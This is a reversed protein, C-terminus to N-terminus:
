ASISVPLDLFGFPDTMLELTKYFDYPSVRGQLNITHFQRMCSITACTQPELPTAPMWGVEMLQQREPGANSCGCYDVSIFHIGNTHFVM